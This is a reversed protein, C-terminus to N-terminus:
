YRVFYDFKVMLTKSVSDVIFIDNNMKLTISSQKAENFVTRLLSDLLQLLESRKGMDFTQEIYWVYTRHSDDFITGESDMWRGNTDYWTVGGISRTLADIKTQIRANEIPSLGKGDNHHTPIIVELMKSYQIM